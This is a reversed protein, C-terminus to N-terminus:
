QGPDIHRGVTRSPHDTLNTFHPINVIMWDYLPEIANCTSASLTQEFIDVWTNLQAAWYRTKFGRSRYARFVWLVTDVLAEPHYASLISEIFRAHNAHNDKMLAINDPGVLDVVDPRALMQVNVAAVMEARRAAFEAAAQPAIGALRAASVILDLTQM